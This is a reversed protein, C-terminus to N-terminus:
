RGPQWGVHIPRATEGRQAAGNFPREALRYPEIRWLPTDVIMSNAVMVIRSVGETTSNYVVDRNPLYIVGSLTEGASANFFITRKDANNLADSTEEFMLIGAYPGSAPASATMSASGAICIESHVDPYYFTVGEAKIRAGSDIMMMGSIIHLGPAFVVSRAQPMRVDCHMGAALVVVEGSVLGATACTEPLEPKPLLGRLPDFGVACGTRLNAVTGVEAVGDQGRVCFEAIDLRADSHVVFAPSAASAVEIGCREASILAKPNVLLAQKKTGLLYICSAPHGSRAALGAPAPVRTDLDFGTRGTLMLVVSAIDLRYTGVLEGDPGSTLQFNDPEFRDATDSLYTAASRFQEAEGTERTAFMLATDLDRQMDHRCHIAHAVDCIGGVILILTLLTLAAFPSFRGSIKSPFARKRAFGNRKGRM